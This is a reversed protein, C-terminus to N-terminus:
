NNKSYKEIVKHRLQLDLLTLIFESSNMGLDSAMKKIVEKQTTTVRVQLLEQKARPKKDFMKM